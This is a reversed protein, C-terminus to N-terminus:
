NLAGLMKTQIKMMRGIQDASMEGKSTELEESLDTAKEMLEVYESMADMDGAQAKKYMKLYQDVYSEYKTLLEDWDDESDTSVSSTSGGSSSQVTTSAAEVLQSSISFSKVKDAHQDANYDSIYSKLKIFEAGEGSLLLNEFKEQSSYDVKLDGTGGVPMGNAGILSANLKPKMNKLASSALAKKATIKVTINAGWDDVLEYDAVNVEIYESLPGAISSSEPKVTVVKPEKRGTCSVLTFLIAIGLGTILRKM